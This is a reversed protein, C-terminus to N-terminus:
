EGDTWVAYLTIDGTATYPSAVDPETADSETAWGAFEKGTPATLGSADNLSLSNGAAVKDAAIAGTGGNANYSITYIGVNVVVSAYQTIDSTGNTTITISGSPSILTYVEALGESILENATDTGFESVSGCAVSTLTGTSADRITFPKLAKIKM